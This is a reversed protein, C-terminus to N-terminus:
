ECNPFLEDVPLNLLGAIAKRELMGPMISGNAWRSVTVYDKGCVEAIKDLLEKRPSTRSPLQNIYESFVM